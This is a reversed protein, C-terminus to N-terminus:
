AGAPLAPLPAIVEGVARATVHVYRESTAISAHRAFARVKWADPAAQAFRTIASHRLSHIVFEAPMGLSARVRRHLHDLSTGLYPVGPASEFLWTSPQSQLRAAIVAAARQTLPVAQLGCARKSHTVRLIGFPAAMEPAPDLRLADVRLALCEGLRLAADLCLVAVDRLPQPCAELYRSEDAPSLVYDRPASEAYMKIRPTKTILGVDAAERLLKRLTALQRNVTSGKPMTTRRSQYRGPKCPQERRWTAYEQVLASTIQDLRANRLPAYELLRALKEAYYRVTEPRTERKEQSVRDIFSQAYEALTPLPKRPELGVSGRSLELRYERELAAADRRNALGTSRRVRTGRWVFEYWWVGGRRYLAM